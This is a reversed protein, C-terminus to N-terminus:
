SMVKSLCQIVREFEKMKKQEVMWKQKAASTTGQSLQQVVAVKRQFAETLKKLLLPHKQKWLLPGIELLLEEQIFSDQYLAPDEGPKALLIEYLHNAEEVITEEVLRWHNKQLWARVCKANLNPQLVMGQIPKLKAKGRELIDVILSGGMGALVLYDVEDQDFVSLGDGLRVDVVDQVGMQRINRKANEFPGRNVEGVIGRLLRGEKALQILLFAHDGGIDAVKVHDPILEAITQLRKSIKWNKMNEGEDREINVYCFLQDFSGALVHKESAEIGNFM